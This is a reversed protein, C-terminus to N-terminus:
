RSVELVSSIKKLESESDVTLFFSCFFFCFFRCRKEYTHEKGKESVLSIASSIFVLTAETGPFYGSIRPNNLPVYFRSSRLNLRTHTFDTLCGPGNVLWAFRNWGSGRSWCNLLINRPNLCISFSPSFWIKKTTCSVRKGKIGRIM